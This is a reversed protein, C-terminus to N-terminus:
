VSIHVVQLSLGTRSRAQVVPQVYPTAAGAGTGDFHHSIINAHVTDITKFYSFHIM